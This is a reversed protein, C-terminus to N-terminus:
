WSIWLIEMISLLCQTPRIQASLHLSPLFLPVGSLLASLEHPGQCFNSSFFSSLQSTLPSKHPLSHNGLSLLALQRLCLFLFQILNKMVEVLHDGWVDPSVLTHQSLSQQFPSLLFSDTPGLLLAPCSPPWTAIFNDLHASIFCSTGMILM